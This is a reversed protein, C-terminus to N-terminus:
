PHPNARITLKPDIPRSNYRGLAEDSFPLIYVFGVDVEHTNM